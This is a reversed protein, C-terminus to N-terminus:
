SLATPCRRAHSPASSRRASEADGRQLIPPAKRSQRSLRGRSVASRPLRAPLGQVSPNYRSRNFSEPLQTYEDVRSQEPATAFIQPDSPFFNNVPPPLMAMHRRRLRRRSRRNARRGVPFSPCGIEGGPDIRFRPSGRFPFFIASISEVLRLTQGTTFFRHPCADSKRM